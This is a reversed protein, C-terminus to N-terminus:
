PRPQPDDRRCWRARRTPGRRAAPGGWWSRHGRLGGPPENRPVPERHEGELVRLDRQERCPRPREAPRAAPSARRRKRRAGASTPTLLVNAARV